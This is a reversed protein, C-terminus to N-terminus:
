GGSSKTNSYTGPAKKSPVTKTAKPNDVSTDQVNPEYVDVNNTGPGSAEVVHHYCGATGIMFVALATACVGRVAAPGSFRSQSLSFM